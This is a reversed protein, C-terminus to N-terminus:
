TVQVLASKKAGEVAGASDRNWGDMDAGATTEAEGLPKSRSLTSSGDGCGWNAELPKSAKPALEAGSEKEFLM